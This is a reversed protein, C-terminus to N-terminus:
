FDYLFRSAKLLTICAFSLVAYRIVIWFNPLNQSFTLRVLSERLCGVSFGRPTFNVTGQISVFFVAGTFITKLNGMSPTVILPKTLQAARSRFNLGSKILDYTDFM